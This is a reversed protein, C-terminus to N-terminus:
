INSVSPAGDRKFQSPTTGTFREFMNYFHNYNNYGCKQAIENVPLETTEMLEIAKTIRHHNIFDKISQDFQKRFANGLHNSDLFFQESLSKVTIDEALHSLIYDRVEYLHPKAEKKREAVLLSLAESLIEFFGSQDPHWQTDMRACLGQTGIDRSELLRFIDYLIDDILRLTRAQQHFQSLSGATDGNQPPYIQGAAACLAQEDMLELARVVEQRVAPVVMAPGRLPCERYLADMEMKLDDFVEEIEQHNLPKLLFHRVKNHLAKQAYEFNGYGSLIVFRANCGARRAKEILALGDMNPMRIDTIIVDPRYRLIDAWASEGNDSSGCIAFGAASWDILLSLGEIVSPEDDVIYLRYLM